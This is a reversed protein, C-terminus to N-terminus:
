SSQEARDAPVSRQKTIQLLYLFNMQEGELWMVDTVCVTETWHSNMLRKPSLDEAQLFTYFYNYKHQWLTFTHSCKAQASLQMLFTLRLHANADPSVTALSVCTITMVISDYRVVACNISQYPWHLAIDICHLLISHCWM